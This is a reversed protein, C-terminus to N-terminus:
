NGFGVEGEWLGAKDVDTSRSVSVQRQRRQEGAQTKKEEEDQFSLFLQILLSSHSSLFCSLSFAKKKQRKM